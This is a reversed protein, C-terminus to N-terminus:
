EELKKLIEDRIRNLNREINKISKDAISSLPQGLLGEISRVKVLIKEPYRLLEELESFVEEIKTDSIDIKKRKKEFQNLEM